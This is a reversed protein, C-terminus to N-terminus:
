GYEFNQIAVMGAYFGLLILVRVFFGQRRVVQMWTLAYAFAWPAGNYAMNMFAVRWANEGYNLFWGMEGTNFQSVVLLVVFHIFVRLPLKLDSDQQSTQISM